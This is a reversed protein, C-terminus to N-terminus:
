QIGAPTLSHVGASYGGTTAGICFTLTYTDGVAPAQYKYDNATTCTASDAPLPADPILGIYTTLFLFISFIARITSNRFTDAVRVQKVPM